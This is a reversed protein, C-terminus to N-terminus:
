KSDSLKDPSEDRSSVSKERETFHNTAQLEENLIPSTLNGGAIVYM